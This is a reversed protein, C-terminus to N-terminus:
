SFSLLLLRLIGITPAAGRRQLGGVEGPSGKSGPRVVGVAVHVGRCGDGLVGVSVLVVSGPM